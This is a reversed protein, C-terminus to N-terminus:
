TYTFLLSWEVPIESVNWDLCRLSRSPGRNWIMTEICRCLDRRISNSNGNSSTNTSTNNITIYINHQRPCPPHQPIHIHIHILVNRNLNRVRTHITMVMMSTKSTYGDRTPSTTTTRQTTDEQQQTRSQQHLRQRHGIKLKWQYLYLPPLPARPTINNTLSGSHIGFTTGRRRRSRCDIEIRRLAPRGSMTITMFTEVAVAALCRQLVLPRLLVPPLRLFPHLLQLLIHNFDVPGLLFGSRRSRTIM